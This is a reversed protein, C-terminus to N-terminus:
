VWRYLDFELLTLQRAIEIPHLSTISFKTKDHTVHWEVVPPESAFTFTPTEDEAIRKRAILKEMTRVLKQRNTGRISAVFEEVRQLMDADTEFDYWHFELWQRLM